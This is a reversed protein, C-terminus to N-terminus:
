SPKAVNAVLKGKKSNCLLMIMSPSTLTYVKLGYEHKETKQCQRSKKTM